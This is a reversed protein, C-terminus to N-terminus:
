GGLRTTEALGAFTVGTLEESKAWLGRQLETDYSLESSTAIVAHDGAVGGRGSPAFFQGGLVGPDTAARLIPLVAHDVSNFVRNIIPQLLRVGPIDLLLTTPSLGPHAAVAITKAGAASLRRQLEYTFLLNALKSRGYAANTVQAERDRFVLRNSLSGLEEPEDFGDATKKRSTYMAAANNLLLDISAVRDKLEGAATRISDLSSLDVQQLHLDAGPQERLIDEIATAGKDPNRVALYVTAGKAALTRSAELGLGSNAGTVVATRGTLDPIDSATWPM